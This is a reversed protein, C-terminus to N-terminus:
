SNLPFIGEAFQVGIQHFTEPDGKVEMLKETLAEVVETSTNAIENVLTEARYNVYNEKQQLIAKEMMAMDSETEKAASVIADKLSVQKASKRGRGNGKAKPTAPAPTGNSVALNAVQKADPLLEDAITKADADSVNKPDLGYETLKGQITADDALRGQEQLLQKIKDM